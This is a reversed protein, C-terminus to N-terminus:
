GKPTLSLKFIKSIRWHNRPNKIFCIKKKGWLANKEFLYCDIYTIIATIQQIDMFYGALKAVNNLGITPPNTNVTKVSEDGKKM